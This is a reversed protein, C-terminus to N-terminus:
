THRLHSLFLHTYSTYIHYALLCTFSTAQSFSVTVFSCRNAYLIVLLEDVQQSTFEDVQMFSVTVFSCRNAYLIVLLEDVQLGTFEDVQLFSMTVFSRPIDIIYCAVRRSTSKNVRRSVGLVVGCM